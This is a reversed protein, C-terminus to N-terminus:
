PTAARMIVFETRYAASTDTLRVPNTPDAGRPEDADLTRDGDLDVFAHLTVVPDPTCCVNAKGQYGRVGHTAPIHTHATIEGGANPEIAAFAIFVGAPVTVDEALSVRFVVEYAASCSTVLLLLAPALRVALRPVAIVVIGRGRAGRM